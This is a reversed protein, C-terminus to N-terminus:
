ESRISALGWALDTAVFWLRRWPYCIDLAMRSSFITGKLDYRRDVKDCLEAKAVYCNDIMQTNPGTIRQLKM